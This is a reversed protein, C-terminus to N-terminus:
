RINRILAKTVCEKAEELTDATDGVYAEQSISWRIRKGNKTNIERISCWWGQPATAWYDIEDLAFNDTEWNLEFQPNEKELEKYLGSYYMLDTVAIKLNNPDKLFDEHQLFHATKELMEAIEKPKFSMVM